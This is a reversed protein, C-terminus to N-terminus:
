AAFASRPSKRTVNTPACPQFECCVGKGGSCAMLTNRRPTSFCKPSDNVFPASELNCGAEFEYIHLLALFREAADLGDFVTLRGSGDCLWRGDVSIVLCGDDLSGVAHLRITEEQHHWEPWAALELWTAIKRTKNM